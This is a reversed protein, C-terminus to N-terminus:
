NDQGRLNHVRSIPPQNRIGSHPRRTNYHELWRPLAQNRHHRSHHTIGYAWERGM